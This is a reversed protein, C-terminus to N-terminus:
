GGSRRTGNGLLRPVRTLVQHVVIGSALGALTALLRSTDQVSPFVEWHVLYIWLSAGALVGAVQAVWAPV